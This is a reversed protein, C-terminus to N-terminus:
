MSGNEVRTEGAHVPCSDEDIECLCGRVDPLCKVLWSGVPGEVVAEAVIQAQILADPVGCAWFRGLPRRDGWIEYVRYREAM